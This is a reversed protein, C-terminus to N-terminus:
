IDLSRQLLSISKDFSKEIMRFYEQDFLGVLMHRNYERDSSLKRRQAKIKEIKEICDDDPHALQYRELLKDFYRPVTVDGSRNGSSPLQIRDYKYIDVKHREFYEGGIGPRNSALSFEPLVHGHDDYFEQAQLGKFKKVVYRATYAACEWTLEGIVVYGKGWLKELTPSTYLVDGRFNNKYFQLDQIPLNFYCVHYHPRRTKMGYEGAAYFRIGKHGFERDYYERLRKNFDQLDKKILTAGPLSYTNGEYIYEYWYGTLNETLHPEDYTLTVFFCSNKPSVLQEMVIRDAWHRAYDIRCGRCQQCPVLLSYSFEGNYDVSESDYAKVYTNPKNVLSYMVEDGIQCEYGAGQFQWQKLSGDKNRLKTGDSSVIGSPCYTMINPHFCSM